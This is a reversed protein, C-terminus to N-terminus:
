LASTPTTVASGHPDPSTPSKTRILRAMAVRHDVAIKAGSSPRRGTSTVSPRDTPPGTAAPDWLTYHPVFGWQASRLSIAARFFFPTRFFADARLPAARFPLRDRLLPLARLFDAARLREECGSGITVFEIM